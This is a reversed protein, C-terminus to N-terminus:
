TGKRIGMVNGEADMEVSTLGHQRLMELYIKGKKEEKFPPAEIETLQITENVFRDYDKEIFAQAAKFKEHNIVRQATADPSQAGVSQCFLVLAFAIRIAIKMISRGRM